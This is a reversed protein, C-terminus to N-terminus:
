GSRARVIAARAGHPESPDRGGATGAQNVSEPAAEIRDESDEGVIGRVHLGQGVHAEDSLVVIVVAELTQDAKLPQFVGGVLDAHFTKARTGTVNGQRLSEGRARRPDGRM